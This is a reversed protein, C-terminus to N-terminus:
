KKCFPTGLHFRISFWILNMWLHAMIPMWCVLDSSIWGYTLWLPCGAAPASTPAWQQSVRARQIPDLSPTYLPTDRSPKLPEAGASAHHFRFAGFDKPIVCLLPRRPRKEHLKGNMWGDWWGDMNPMMCPLFGQCFYIVGGRRMHRQRPFAHGTGPPPPHGWSKSILILLLGLMYKGPWLCHLCWSKWRGPDRHIRASHPIHLPKPFTTQLQLKTIHVTLYVCV